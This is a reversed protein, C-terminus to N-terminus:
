CFAYDPLHIFVHSAYFLIGSYNAFEDCHVDTLHVDDIALDSTSQDGQTATLLLSISGPPMCFSIEEWNWNYTTRQTDLTFVERPERRMSTVSLTFGGIDSSSHYYVKMRVIRGTKSNHSVDPLVAYARDRESLRNSPIRFYYGSITSVSIM